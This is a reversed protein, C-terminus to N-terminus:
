AIDDGTWSLHIVTFPRALSPFTPASEVRNVCALMHVRLLRYPSPSPHPGRTFGTTGRLSGPQRQGWSLLGVTGDRCAVLDPTSALNAGKMQTWWHRALGDAIPRGPGDGGLEASVGPPGNPGVWPRTSGARSPRDKPRHGGTDPGSHVAFDSFPGQVELAFQSRDPLQGM